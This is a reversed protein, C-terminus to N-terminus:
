RCGGLGIVTAIAGGLSSRNEAGVNGDSVNADVRLTLRKVFWYEGLPPGGCTDEDARPNMAIRDLINLDVADKVDM